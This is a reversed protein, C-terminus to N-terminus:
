EGIKMATICQGNYVCEGGGYLVFDCATHLIQPKKNKDPEPSENTLIFLFPCVKWILNTNKTLKM